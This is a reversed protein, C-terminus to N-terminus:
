PISSYAMKKPNEKHSLFLESLKLRLDLTVAQTWKVCFHSVGINFPVQVLIIGVTGLLISKLETFQRKLLVDDIIWKTLYPFVASILIQLM